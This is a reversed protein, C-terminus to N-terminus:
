EKKEQVKADGVIIAIMPHCDTSTHIQRKKFNKSSKILYPFGEETLIAIVMNFAANQYERMDVAFIGNCKKM